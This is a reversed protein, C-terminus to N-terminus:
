LTSGQFPFTLFIPVSPPVPVVLIKVTLGLMAEWDGVAVGESQASPAETIRWDM